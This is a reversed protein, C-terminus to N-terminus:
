NCQRCYRKCMTKANPFNDCYGPIYRRPCKSSKNKCDNKAASKIPPPTPTTTTTTYPPTTTAETTTTTTAEPTTTPPQTTTTETTTTTSTTTTTPSLTTEATTTPPQTTTTETTTTTSTTTTPSPTTEPTTPPLPTDVENTDSEDTDSKNTDFEDVSRTKTNDYCLGENYTQGDKCKKTCDRTYPKRGEVNGPPYYYCAVLWVNSCNNLACGVETTSNEVMQTYHCSPKCEAQSEKYGGKEKAWMGCSQVGIELETKKSRLKALNEGFDREQHQYQCTSLWAKAEKEMKMSYKLPPMHCADVQGRIKNHCDVIAQREKPGWRINQSRCEAVFIAMLLLKRFDM